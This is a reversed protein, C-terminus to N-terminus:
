YVIAITRDDHHSEIYFHLWELLKDASESNATQLSAADQVENWLANWLDKSKLNNDTGFKPDSVGDSMSIISKFDSVWAYKTRQELNREQEEQNAGWINRMTVFRTEGVNEGGDPISLSVLDGDPTILAIAGDGVYVSVVLWTTGFKKLLLGLLTAAYEKPEVNKKLEQSKRKAEEDIARFGEYGARWAISRLNTVMNTKLTELEETPISQEFANALESVKKKMTENEQLYKKVYSCFSECVIKSGWRSYEASGAGDSVVVVYWGADELYEIKFNDDRYSGGHEHSRGRRSAAVISKFIGKKEDLLLSNKDMHLTEYEKSEPDRVEFMAKPNLISLINLNRSMEESHNGEDDILEYIINLFVEINKQPLGDKAVEKPIGTILFPNTSDLKLGLEDEHVAGDLATLEAKKLRLYKSNKFISFDLSVNFDKGVRGTNKNAVSDDCIKKLQADDGLSTKKEFIGLDMIKEKSFNSL